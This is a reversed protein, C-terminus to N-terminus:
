LKKKNETKVSRMRTHCIIRITTEWQESKKTEIEHDLNHWMYESDNKM